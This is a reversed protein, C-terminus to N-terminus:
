KLAILLYIVGGLSIGIDRLNLQTIQGCRYSLSNPDLVFAVFKIHCIIVDKLKSGM